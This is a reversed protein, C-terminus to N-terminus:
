FEPQAIQYILLMPRGLTSITISTSPSYKQLCVSLLSISYKLSCFKSSILNCSWACCNCSCVKVAVCKLFHDQFFGSFFRPTGEPLSCFSPFSLSGVNCIVTSREQRGLTRNVHILHNQRGGLNSPNVGKEPYPFASSFPM